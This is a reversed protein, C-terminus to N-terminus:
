LASESTLLLVQFPNNGATNQYVEFEVQAKVVEPGSVTPTVKKIRIEPVIFETTEVEPGAGIVSGTLKIWLSTATGATFPTYFETQAYEAEMTGTITPTGAELQEKKLGASSLGYRETDLANDGKFSLSKIVAAVATGGSATLETTGAITAGLVFTTVNTFNFVEANPFSAAALATATAENWGDIDVSMKAVDNDSVSWEWGTVKCGSYTHPKVTFPTVPEPRGVQITLSKGILDGTQHIQKFAAGSAAPTASSGLAAKWLSGMNRTAYDFGLGGTVMKRSRTLRSGRKFKSGVRLGNPELYTPDFAISEENFEIFRNVTVATGVATELKFGVQADLGTGTVM